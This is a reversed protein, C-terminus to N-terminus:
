RRWSPRISFRGNPSLSKEGIEYEKPIDPISQVTAKDPSATQARLMRGDFFCLVFVFILAKV